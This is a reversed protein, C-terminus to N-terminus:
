RVRRAVVIREYFLSRDRRLLEAGLTDDLEFAPAFLPTLDRRNNLQRVLISTGPRTERHIVDAWASIQADSSWDFVNSLSLLEFRGLDPVDPLSGQHLVLARQELSVAPPPVGSGALRLYDPADGPLYYGLLVHQLFYNSAADERLLGREFARQFYGPYSGRVAHQVADPGFMALLLPENFATEFAAPWYPSARWSTVLARRDAPTTEAAFFRDLTDSSTVLEVILGRLVRFLAEFAGLQNLGALDSDGVNLRRLEGANAAAHKARVHTLQAPNLDFAALSLEPRRAALSLLTCGGSAVVLVSRQGYRDLVALELEPDERVVAFKVQPSM